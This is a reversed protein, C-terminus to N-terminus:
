RKKFRSRLHELAKPLAKKQALRIMMDPVATKPVAHVKYIVLTRSGKEDFPVLTWSGTNTKFDGAVMNWARVWKKGPVITHIADTVTRLDDLPTPMDIVVECRVKSGKRWIEKSSKVRQMTHKYDGCRDLIGWIARAPADVVMMGISQPFESGKVKKISTILEGKDLRAKTEGAGAWSTSALSCVLGLAIVICQVKM